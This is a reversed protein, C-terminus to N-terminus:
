GKSVRPGYAEAFQWPVPLGAMQDPAQRFNTEPFSGQRIWAWSSTRGPRWGSKSDSELDPPWTAAPRKFSFELEAGCGGRFGLWRRSGTRCLGRKSSGIRLKWGLVLMTRSATREARIGFLTGLLYSVRGRKCTLASLTGSHGAWAREISAISGSFEM